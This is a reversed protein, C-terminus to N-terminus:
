LVGQTYRKVIEFATKVGVNYFSAIKRYSLGNKRKKVMEKNRSKKEKSM